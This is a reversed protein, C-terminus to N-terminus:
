RMVVTWCDVWEWRDCSWYRSRAIRLRKRFDPAHCVRIYYRAQAKTHFRM